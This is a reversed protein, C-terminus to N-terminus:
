ERTANKKRRVIKKKAVPKFEEVKITEMFEGCTVTIQVSANDIIRAFEHKFMCVSQHICEKCSM